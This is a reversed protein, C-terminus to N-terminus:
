RFSVVLESKLARAIRKMLNLSPNAQLSEIKSIMAQSTGVIKALQRQSYRLNKRLAIMKRALQYEAESEYWLQAFEQDQLQEILHNQFNTVGVHKMSLM